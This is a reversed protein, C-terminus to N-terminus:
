MWGSVTTWYNRYPANPNFWYAVGIHDYGEDFINVCHAASEIWYQRYCYIYIKIM